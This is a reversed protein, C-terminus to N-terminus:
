VMRSRKGAVQIAQDAYRCREAEETASLQSQGSAVANAAM